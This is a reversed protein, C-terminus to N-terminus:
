HRLSVGRAKSLIFGHLDPIVYYCFGDTSLIPAPGYLDCHILDLVHLAGKINNVFPFRHQKALQCSFLTPKALFSTFPMCGSQKLLCIINSTAHGLRTHWIEYSACPHSRSQVTVHAQIRPKLVYLGDEHRGKILITMTKCDQIVFYDRSFLVDVPYDHTLKSDSLLNKSFQPVVLVHKLPIYNYLGIHGICSVTLVNGNGFTVKKM